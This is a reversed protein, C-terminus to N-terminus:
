GAIRRSHISVPKLSPASKGRTTAPPAPENLGARKLALARTREVLEAARKAAAAAKSPDYGTFRPVPARGREFLAPWSKGCEDCYWRAPIQEGRENLVPPLLGLPQRHRCKVLQWAVLAVVSAGAVVSSWLVTAVSVAGLAGGVVLVRAVRRDM